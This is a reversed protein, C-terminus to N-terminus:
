PPFNRRGPPSSHAFCVTWSLHAGIGTLDLSERRPNPFLINTQTGIHYRYRRITGLYRCRYPSSALCKNKSTVLKILTIFVMGEFTPLYTGTSTGVTRYQETDILM